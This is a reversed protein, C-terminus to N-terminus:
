RMQGGDKMPTVIGFVADFATLISQCITAVQDARQSKSKTLIQNRMRIATSVAIHYPFRALLRFCMHYANRERMYECSGVRYADANGLHETEVRVEHQMLMNIELDIRGCMCFNWQWRRLMEALSFFFSRLRINQTSFPIYRIISSCKNLVATRDELCFHSLM